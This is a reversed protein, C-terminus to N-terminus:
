RVLLLRRCYGGLNYMCEFARWAPRQNEVSPNEHFPAVAQHCQDAYQAQQAAAASGPMYEMQDARLRVLQPRLGLLRLEVGGEIRVPDRHEQPSPILEGGVFLLGVVGDGPRSRGPLLAGHRHVDALLVLDLPDEGGQPDVM